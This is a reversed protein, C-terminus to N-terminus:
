AKWGPLSVPRPVGCRSCIRATFTAFTPTTFNRLSRSGSGGGGAPNQTNTTNGVERYTLRVPGSIVENSGPYLTKIDIGEEAARAEAVRQSVRRLAREMERTARDTEIAPTGDSYLLAFIIRDSYLCLGGMMKRTTLTGLGDFLEKAFAIDAESVSM